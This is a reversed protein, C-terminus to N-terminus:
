IAVLLPTRAQDLLLCIGRQAFVLARTLVTARSQEREGRVGRQRDRVAPRRVRDVPLPVRAAGAAPTHVQPAVALGGRHRRPLRWTEIANCVLRM